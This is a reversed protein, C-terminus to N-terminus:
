VGSKPFSIIFTTGKGSASEVRIRGNHEDVIAKVTALGLGTGTTRTSFFPEFIRNINELAIGCGNDRVSSEVLEHSNDFSKRCVIEIKGGDPLAQISNLIINLYLQHLRDPDGKVLPIKQPEFLISINKESCQFKMQRIVASIVQNLDVNSFKASAPRAFSLYDKVVNDLRDVERAVISAFEVKDKEPTAKDNLIQVAGKISGLPNKIEHAISAVMQGLLSLKEAQLLRREAEEKKNRSARDSDLLMGSFGGIAFYFAIETYEGIIDHPAGSPQIYIYLLSFASIVLATLMGGRLGFWFASLVIPIYCLRGHIAHMFHSHGLLGSFLIDYYHISLTSATILVVFIIKAKNKM